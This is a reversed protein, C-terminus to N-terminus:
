RQKKVYDRLWLDAYRTFVVNASLLALIFGHRGDLFGKKFFYMKIFRFIAHGVAKSVSSSKKGERQDSWLRIYQNTKATYEHLYNFTNHRLVGNLYVKKHTDPVVVHEHVLSDSYHMESTKYLRCIWDPHWGSYKIEKGFANSLRNIYYACHSQGHNIANLINAKLEPTVQEDADLWFIFESEVYSQARQRQKGFGPWDSAIYVKDTYKKAIEPTNDTSGADMVVIEDVWDHVSQLCSEINHIENKVILAAAIKKNGKSM